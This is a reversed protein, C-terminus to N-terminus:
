GPQNFFTCLEERRSAFRWGDTTRVVRDQYWVYCFFIRSEDAPGDLVLPNHCMTRVSAADGDADFDILISAVMHQYTRFIPMTKELWERVEKVSGAIAGTETYDIQADPVFLSEWTDWDRKDLAYTYRTILEQIEIRDSIEQISLTM